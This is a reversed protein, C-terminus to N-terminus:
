KTPTNGITTALQIMTITCRVSAITHAPKKRHFPAIGLLLTDLTHEGLTDTIRPPYRLYAYVGYFGSLIVVVMLAYALTHVNWGVQFAAHLTAIVLLSAGLYV